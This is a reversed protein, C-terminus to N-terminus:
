RDEGVFIECFGAFTQAEINAVKKETFKESM